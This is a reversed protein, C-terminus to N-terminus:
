LQRVPANVREYVEISPEQNFYVECYAVIDLPTSASMGKCVAPLRRATVTIKATIPIDASVKEVPRLVAINDPRGVNPQHVAGTVVVAIVFTMGFAWEEFYRMM